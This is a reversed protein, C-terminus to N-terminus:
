HPISIRWHTAQYNSTLTKVMTDFNTNVWMSPRKEPRAAQRAADNQEVSQEGQATNATISYKPLGEDDHQAAAAQAAAATLVRHLQEDEQTPQLGNAPQSSPDQSM